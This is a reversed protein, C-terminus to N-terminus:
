PTTLPVWCSDEGNTLGVGAASLWGAGPLRDCSCLEGVGQRLCRAAPALTVGACWWGAGEGAALAAGSLTGVVVGAEWCAGQLFALPSVTGNDSLEESLGAAVASVVLCSPVPVSECGLQRFCFVFDRGASVDLTALAETCGWADDEIPTEVEWDTRGAAAM